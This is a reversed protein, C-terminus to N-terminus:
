DACRRYVFLDTCRLLGYQGSGPYQNGANQNGSYQGSEQASVEPPPAVASYGNAAGNWVYYNDNAYYYPVGDVVVDLLLAASHCSCGGAGAWWGWRLAAIATTAAPLRLRGSIRLRRSLRLWAYGYGRSPAGAHGAGLSVARWAGLPGRGACQDRRWPARCAPGSSRECDTSLSKANM